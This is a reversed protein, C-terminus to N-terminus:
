KEQNILSIVQDLAQNYGMQEGLRQYDTSTRVFSTAFADARRMGEIKSLLETSHSSFKNLWWNAIEDPTRDRLSEALEKKFEERLTTPKNPM